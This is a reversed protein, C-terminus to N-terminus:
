EWKESDMYEQFKEAFSKLARSRHSIKNKEVPDMEAFTQEYGRPIFLPDYGFGSKGKPKELLRGECVGAVTWESHQSNCFAIVCRFRATRSEWPVSLLDKLLKENNRADNGDAGAYRASYIGPAGKLADVELGSDDALSPLGTFDRIARAKILANVEFSNGDEEVVPLDPFTKLSLLQFSFSQLIRTIEHIKHSNQTALVLQRIKKM